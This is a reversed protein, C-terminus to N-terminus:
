PPIPVFREPSFSADPSIRNMQDPILLELIKIAEKDKLTNELEIDYSCLAGEIVNACDELETNKEMQVTEYCM